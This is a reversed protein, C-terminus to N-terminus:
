FVNSFIFSFYLLFFCKPLGSFISLLTLIFHPYTLQTPSCHQNMISERGVYSLISAPHLGTFVLQHHTHLLYPFYISHNRSILHLFSVLLLMRFLISLFSFYSIIIYTSLSFLIFFIFFSVFSFIYMSQNGICIKL